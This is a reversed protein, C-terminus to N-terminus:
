LMRQARPAESRQYISRFTEYNANLRQHREYRSLQEMHEPNVNEMIGYVTGGCANLASACGMQPIPNLQFFAQKAVPLCAGLSGLTIGLSLYMGAGFLAGGAAYKAVKGLLLVDPHCSPVIFDRDRGLRELFTDCANQYSAPNRVNQIFTDIVKADMGDDRCNNAITILREIDSSNDDLARYSTFLRAHM